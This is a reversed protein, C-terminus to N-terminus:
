GPADPRRGPLILRATRRAWDPGVDVGALALAYRTGTCAAAALDLDVDDLDVLGRDRARRLIARIRARRPGVVRERFRRRLTSDVSDQLMSGVMSIGGPRSVGRDFAELEAVLDAFPDGTELPVDERAMAAIAATALDAKNEWRRYVSQRTTGADAAVAALSMAEYGHEALHRRAADLVAADIGRDRPRGPGARDEREM